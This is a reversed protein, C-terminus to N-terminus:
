EAELAAIQEEVLAVLQGMTEADFVLKAGAAAFLEQLPKTAGLALANRYAALAGAHNALSNRWVQLAGMQAIGYEIYYFPYLFVHLQRYWRALREPELGSWDLGADFRKHIRLWAADRADADHGEGSTYVWQQFADIAAMHPLSELTGELHEIRARRADADSYFGGDEEALYQATLLEMSMSAVEAMESGPHRQFVLPQQVAELNHFAHGAEHLLTEVDANVGAANMFIFPRGRYPLFTCYGGPRKGKRSDLDLLHEDAMLGFYRGLTPDLRNFITRGGEILTSVDDFPKLPPRGEPDVATDWPRLTDLGLKARRREYIRAVAPVVTREVADHFRMCDDPTYDFRNKAQHVYDRYNAFGANTAQQVRVAYMEDFLAALEDRRAIYPAFQLRFARERVGRDTSLLFPRLRPLPLEQGEWEVTMGGTIKNYRANLKAEEAGLPVNEARFLEASNRFRRITTVLDDRTYGLDLLRRALRVQQESMQPAIESTFRLAAAEKAPNATDTTYAITALAMAERLAAELASWNALWADANASDLPRAALEEYYPLIEGWTAEAFTGPTVRETSVL